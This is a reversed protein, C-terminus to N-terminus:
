RGACDCARSQSRSPHARCRSLPAVSRPTRPKPCKCTSVYCTAVHRELLGGAPTCLVRTRAASLTGARIDVQSARVMTWNTTVLTVTVGGQGRQTYNLADTWYAGTKFTAAYTATLIGGAGAGSAVVEGDVFPLVEDGDALASGFREVTWDMTQGLPPTRSPNSCADLMTIVCVVREGAVADRRGRECDLTFNASRGAVVTASGTANHAHGFSDSHLVTVNHEGAPCTALDFHWHIPGGYIPSPDRLGDGPLVTFDSAAAGVAPVDFDDRTTITCNAREEGSVAVGECEVTTRNLMMVSAVDTESGQTGCVLLVVMSAM